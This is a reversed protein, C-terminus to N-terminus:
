ICFDRGSPTTISGRKSLLLNIPSVVEVTAVFRISPAKITIKTRMKKNPLQRPPKITAEVIGSDKSNANIKIFTNLTHALRILKPAISKPIITSPATIITSDVTNRIAEWTSLFFFIVVLSRSSTAADAELFIIFAANKPWSIIRITNRGM